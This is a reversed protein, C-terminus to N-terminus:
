VLPGQLTSLVTSPLHYVGWLHYNNSHTQARTWLGKDRGQPCLVFLCKGLSLERRPSARRLTRIGCFDVSPPPSKSVGDPHRASPCPHLARFKKWKNLTGTDIIPLLSMWQTNPSKPSVTFVAHPQKWGTFGHVGSRPRTLPQPAWAPKPQTTSVRQQASHSQPKGGWSIHEAEETVIGEPPTGPLESCRNTWIEMPRAEKSGNKHAKKLSM